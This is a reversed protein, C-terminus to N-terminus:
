NQNGPIYLESGQALVTSKTLSLGNLENIKSISASHMGAFEGYTMQKNVTVTRVKPQAPTHNVKKVEQQKSPTSKAVPAPAPRSPAKKAVPAPRKPAPTSAVRATSPLKIKKGAYIRKPDLKYNASQIAKVTTKHKRAISYLTEGKKVTYTNSSKHTNSPTSKNPKPTEKKTIQPAPTSTYGPVKISQGVSLRNIDIGRNAAILKALSTNNKRAIKSLSDGKKVKYSSLTNKSTSPSPRTTATQGSRKADRNLLSHLNDVEKELEKIQREQEACKDRLTELQSKAPAMLSLSGVLSTTALITKNM